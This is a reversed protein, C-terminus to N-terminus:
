QPDAKQRELFSFRFDESTLKDGNHFTVDDRFTLEISKGDEGLWKWEKIVNPSLKLDASYTLPSDFVSKFVSMALPFTHAVPDWSPVDVPYAITLSDSAARAGAVPTALALSAVLAGAAIRRMMMM